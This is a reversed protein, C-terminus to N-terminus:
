RVYHELRQDFRRMLDRWEMTVQDIRQALIILWYDRPNWFPFELTKAGGSAPDLGEGNLATLYTSKM